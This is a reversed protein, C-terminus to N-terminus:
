TQSAVSLLVRSRLKLIVELTKTRLLPNGQFNPSGVYPKEELIIIAARLKAELPDQAFAETNLVM